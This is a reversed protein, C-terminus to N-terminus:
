RHAAPRCLIAHGLLIDALDRFGAAQHEHAAPQEAQQSEPATEWALFVKERKSRRPPGTDSWRGPEKKHRWNKLRGGQEMCRQSEAARRRCEGALLSTM